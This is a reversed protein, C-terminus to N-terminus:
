SHNEYAKIGNVELKQILAKAFQFLTNMFGYDFTADPHEKVYKVMQEYKEKDM